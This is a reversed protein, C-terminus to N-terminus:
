RRGVIVARDDQSYLARHNNLGKYAWRLGAEEIGGSADPKPHQIYLGPYGEAVNEGNVQLRSKGEAV